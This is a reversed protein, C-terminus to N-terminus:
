PRPEPNQAIRKMVDIISISSTPVMDTRGQIFFTGSFTGDEREIRTAQLNANHIDAPPLPGKLREPSMSVSAPSGPTAWHVAVYNDPKIEREPNHALADIAIRLSQDMSDNHGAHRTAEACAEAWLLLREAGVLPDETWFPNEMDVNAAEIRVHNSDWKAILSIGCRRGYSGLSHIGHMEIQMTIRPNAASSINHNTGNWSNQVGVIRDDCAALTDWAIRAMRVLRRSMHGQRHTWDYCTVPLGDYVTACPPAFPRMPRSPRTPPRDPTAPEPEPRSGLLRRLLSTIAHM